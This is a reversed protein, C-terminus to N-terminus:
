DTFGVEVVEVEQQGWLRSRRWRNTGGGRGGCGKAKPKWWRRGAYMTLHLHFLWPLSNRIRHFWFAASAASTPQFNRNRM